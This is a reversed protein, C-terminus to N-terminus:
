GFSEAKALRQKVAAASSTLWAIHSMFADRTLGQTAILNDLILHFGESPAAKIVPRGSLAAQGVADLIATDDRVRMPMDGVSVSIELVEGSSDARVIVEGSDLATRIGTNLDTAPGTVAGVDALWSAALSLTEQRELGDTVVDQDFSDVDLFTVQFPHLVGWVDRLVRTSESVADAIGPPWPFLKRHNGAGESSTWGMSDLLAEQAGADGGPDVQYRLAYAEAVLDRGWENNFLAYQLYKHSPRGDSTKYWIECIFFTGDNLSGLTRALREEFPQWVGMVVTGSAQSKSLWSLAGGTDPGTM